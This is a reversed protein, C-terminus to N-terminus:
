ANRPKRGRKAPTDETNVEGDVVVEDGVLTHISADFDEANIVIYGHPNDDSKESVIKVTEIMSESM